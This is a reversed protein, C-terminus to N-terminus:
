ANGRDISGSGTVGFKTYLQSCFPPSDPGAQAEMSRNMLQEAYQRVREPVLDNSVSDIGPRLFDLLLNGRVQDSDNWAEHEVTDDFILCEGERWNRTENAVRLRCGPPVALGLHLRYVSQAWGIHPTIHTKPALRSFGALVVGPIAEIIDATQPCKECAAVIRDGGIFLGYVSWGEGHMERQVWPDFADDPLALFEDRIVEWNAELFATFEFESPDLFM